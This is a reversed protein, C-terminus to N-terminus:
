SDFSYYRLLNDYKLNYNEVQSILDATWKIKYRTKSETNFLNKSCGQVYSESCNVGLFNCMKGITSTPHEVLDKVHIELLDLNYQKKASMITQHSDFHRQIHHAMHKYESDNLSFSKNSIRIDSMKDSCHYLFASAINDYPNRIVYIVKFPIDILTKLKNYINKWELPDRHFFSVTKGGNKDGIVDVYSSYTGQYLDGIQLTYGKRKIDFSDSNRLGGSTHSVNYSNRWLENFVAAKSTFRMPDDKLQFFIKAEHAVIMHPHSDLISGVISHGSHSRGVFFVFCKVRNIVSQPLPIFKNAQNSSRLSPMHDILQNYKAPSFSVSSLWYCLVVTALIVLLGYKWKM